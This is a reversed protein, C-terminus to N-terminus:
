LDKSRTSEKVPMNVLVIIEREPYLENDTFIKVKAEFGGEPFGPVLMIKLRYKMGDELTELSYEIFKNDSKVDLIKLPKERKNRILAKYTLKGEYEPKIGSFRIMTPVIVFPQDFVARVPIRLLPEEDLNTFAKVTASLVNKMTETSIHIAVRYVGSDDRGLLKATIFDGEVELNEIELDFGEVPTIEVIQEAVKERPKLDKLEVSPPDMRATVLLKGTMTLITEPEGPDDTEIRVSKELEGEELTSTNLRVDVELEEGPMLWEKDITAGTCGCDRQVGKISLPADGVNQITFTHQIIEGRYVKGFNYVPDISEVKPTPEKGAKAATEDTSGQASIEMFGVITMVLAAFPVLTFLRCHKM